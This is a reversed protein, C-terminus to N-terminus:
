LGDTFSTLIGVAGVAIVLSSSFYRCFLANVPPRYAPPLKSPPRYGNWPPRYSMATDSGLFGQLRGCPLRHPRNPRYKALEETLVSAM